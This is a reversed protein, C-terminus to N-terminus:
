TISYEKRYKIQNEKVRYGVKNEKYNDDIQILLKDKM